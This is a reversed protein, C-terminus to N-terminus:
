IREPMAVVVTQVGYKEQVAHEIEVIRGQVILRGEAQVPFYAWLHIDEGEVPECPVLRVQPFEKQIALILEAAALGATAATPHYIAQTM